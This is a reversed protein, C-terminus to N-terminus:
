FKALDARAVVYKLIANKANVEGEMAIITQNLTYEKSLQKNAADTLSTTLNTVKTQFTEMAADSAPAKVEIGQIIPM